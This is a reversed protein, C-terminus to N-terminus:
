IRDELALKAPKLGLSVLEEQSKKALHEHSCIIRSWAGTPIGWAKCSSIKHESIYWGRAKAVKRVTAPKELMRDIKGDYVELRILEVLDTDTIILPTDPPFREKLADMRGAVLRLGPSYGEEVMAQKTTSDPAEEGKRIPGGNRELWDGFWWKTIQIGGDKLWSDFGAWDFGKEETVKPVLWRRDGSSLLLAKTSNSCALIHLKNDLLYTNMFKKNVEVKDDTIISKLRNYAKASHGQYIEHVVALRKHAVWGNFQSEVM